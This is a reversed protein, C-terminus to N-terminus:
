LNDFYDHPLPTATIMRIEPIDAGDSSSQKDSIKILREAQVTGPVTLGYAIIEPSNERKLEDSYDARSKPDDAECDGDVVISTASTSGEDKEDFPSQRIQSMNSSARDFEDVSFRIEAEYDTQTEEVPFEEHNTTATDDQNDNTSIDADTVSDDRAPTSTTAREEEETVLLETATPTTPNESENMAESTEEEATRRGLDSSSPFPTAVRSESVDEDTKPTAENTENTVDDAEPSKRRGLDGDSPTIERSRADDDNTNPSKRQSLDTSLAPSETGEGAESSKQRSFGDTPIPTIGREMDDTTTTAPDEIIINTSDTPDLDESEGPQEADVATFSSENERKTETSLKSEASIKSAGSLVSNDRWEGGSWGREERSSRREQSREDYDTRMLNAIKVSELGYSAIYKPSDRAFDESSTSRSSYHTPEDLIEYDGMYRPPTSRKTSAAAPKATRPSLAIHHVNFLHDPSTPTNVRKVSPLPRRNEPFDISPSFSIDPETPFFNGKNMYGRTYNKARPSESEMRSTSRRNVDSLDLQPLRPSSRNDGNLQPLRRPIRTENPLSRSVFGRGTKQNGYGTYLENKRSSSKSYNSDPTERVGNRNRSGIYRATPTDMTVDDDGGLLVKDSSSLSSNLDVYDYNVRFKQRNKSAFMKQRINDGYEKRLKQNARKQDIYPLRKEDDINSDLPNNRWKRPTTSAISNSEISSGHRSRNEKQQKRKQMTALREDDALIKKTRYERSFRDVSRYSNANSLPKRLRADFATSAELRPSKYNRFKLDTTIKNAPRHVAFFDRVDRNPGTKLGLPNTNLNVSLRDLYRAHIEFRADAAMETTSVGTLPSAASQVESPNM